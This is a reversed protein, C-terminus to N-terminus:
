YTNIQDTARPRSPDLSTSAKFLNTMAEDAFSGGRLYWESYRLIVSKIILASTIGRFSHKCRNWLSPVLYAFIFNLIKINRKGLQRIEGKLRKM